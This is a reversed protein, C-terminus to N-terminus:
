HCRESGDARDGEPVSGCANQIQKKEHEEGGTSLKRGAWDLGYRDIVTRFDEVDHPNIIYKLKEGAEDIGIHLLEHYMLIEMQEQTLGATNTEYIVILFDHPVYPRYLDQGKICEGLVARGSRKKERDSTLYGIRINIDRIWHLDDHEDIVKEALGSYEESVKM